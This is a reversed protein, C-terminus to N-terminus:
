LIRRNKKIESRRKKSELRKEKAAARPKTPKRAKPKQLGKALVELLKETAIEKNKKQSRTEECTIKLQGVESIKPGLKKLLRVKEEPGFAMSGEVYFYLEVKTSVKNVHQGGKGGSRTFRFVCERIVQEPDM